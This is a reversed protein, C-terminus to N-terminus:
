LTVNINQLSRAITRTPCVVMGDTLVEGLIEIYDKRPGSYMSDYKEAISQGTENGFVHM